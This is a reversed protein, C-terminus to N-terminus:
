LPLRSTIGTRHATVFRVLPRPSFQTATSMVQYQPGAVSIVKGARADKLAKNVVQDPTLWMFGPLDMSMDARDFFETRIAGPCVATATVGTGRLEAQLGETFTTVWAKAASYTGETAWGAISSVNIITGTGRSVMGPLAAHCFQMPATVMVDLLAQEADFDGRVFLQNTTFGANNVLIDIPQRHEPVQLRRVVRKRGAVSSLDGVMVEVGVGYKKMLDAAVEALRSRTRAVIVLDRGESALAEAFARGLGASAGTILATSM